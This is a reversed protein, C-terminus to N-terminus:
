PAPSLLLSERSRLTSRITEVGRELNPLNEVISDLKKGAIMSRLLECQGVLQEDHHILRKLTEAENRYRQTMRDNEPVPQQHLSSELAGIERVLRELRQATAIAAADPFPHERSPPPLFQRRYEGESDSASAMAIGLLSAAKTRVLQDDARLQNELRYFNYGWGYFLNTALQRLLGADYFGSNEM